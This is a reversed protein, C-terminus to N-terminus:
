EETKTQLYEILIDRHAECRTLALLLRERQKNVFSPLLGRCSLAQMLHSTYPQLLTRVTGAQKLARQRFHAALAADDAIIDNLQQIAAEFGQRDRLLEVTPTEACQVYPLLEFGVESGDIHLMIMYGEHWFGQPMQGKDFCFNGLGYCIPRGRYVEYGSFCHQHHNVVADAGADILFRYTEKMRPTPLNYHETGGHVIVM